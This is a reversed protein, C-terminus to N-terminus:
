TCPRSVNAICEDLVPGLTPRVPRDAVQRQLAVRAGSVRALDRVARDKERKLKGVVLGNRAAAAQAAAFKSRPVIDAKLREEKGRPGPSANRM